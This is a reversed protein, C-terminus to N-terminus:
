PIGWAECGESGLSTSPTPSGGCVTGQALAFQGCDDTVDGLLQPVLPTVQQSMLSHLTSTPQPWRRCSVSGVRPPM